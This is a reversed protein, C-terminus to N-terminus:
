RKASWSTFVSLDDGSGAVPPQPSEKSKLHAAVRDALVEILGASPQLDDLWMGKDFILFKIGHEKEFPALQEKLRLFDAESLNTDVELAYTKGRELGRAAVAGIVLEPAEMTM